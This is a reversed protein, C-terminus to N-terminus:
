KEERAFSKGATWFQRKDISSVNLGTTWPFTCFPYFTTVYPIEPPTPHLKIKSNQWKWSGWISFQLLDCKKPYYHSFALQFFLGQVAKTNAFPPPRGGSKPQTVRVGESTHRGVIGSPSSHQLTAITIESYFIESEGLRKCRTFSGVLHLWM